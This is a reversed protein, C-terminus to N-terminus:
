EGYERVAALAEPTGIRNLTRVITRQVTYEKPDIEGVLNVRTSDDVKVQEALPPSEVGTPPTSIEQALREEEKLAEILPGVARADGSWGLADAACSRVWWSEDRLAAILAELAEEGGLEGLALVANARVRLDDDSMSGVLHPIATADRIKGLILAAMHRLDAGGERLAIILPRVTPQGIKVLKMIAERRVVRDEGELSAILSKIAKEESM